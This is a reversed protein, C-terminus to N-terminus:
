KVVEDVGKKCLTADSPLAPDIATQYGVPCPPDGASPVWNKGDCFLLRIGESTDVYFRGLNASTCDTPPTMSVPIMAPPGPTGPQPGLPQTNVTCSALGLFLGMIISKSM